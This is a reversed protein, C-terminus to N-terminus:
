SLLNTFAPAARTHENVLIGDAGPLQGYADPAHVGFEVRNCDTANRLGFPCSTNITSFVPPLVCVNATSQSPWDNM